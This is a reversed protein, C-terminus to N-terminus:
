FAFCFRVQLEFVISPFDFGAGKFGMLTRCGFEDLRMLPAGGPQISDVFESLNGIRM